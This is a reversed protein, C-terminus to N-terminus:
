SIGKLCYFDRSHNLGRVKLEEAIQRWGSSAVVIFTKNSQMDTGFFSEKSLVKSSLFSTNSKGIDSDIFGLVRNEFGLLKLGNLFKEGFAGTGWIWLRQNEGMTNIRKWLQQNEFDILLTPREIFKLGEKQILNRFYATTLREALYGYIRLDKFGLIRNAEREIEEILPFLWECLDVFLNKKLLFINGWRASQNQADQLCEIVQVEGKNKLVNIMLQWSEYGHKSIYHDRVSQCIKEEYPLVADFNSINELEQSSLSVMETSLIKEIPVISTKSFHGFLNDEYPNKKLLLQRRYHSFGILLDGNNSKQWIKHLATLECYSSNKYWISGAGRDNIEKMHGIPGVWIVKSYVMEYQCFERHSVIYNLIVIKFIFIELLEDM